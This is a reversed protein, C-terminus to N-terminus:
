IIISRLTGAFTYNTTGIKYIRFGDHKRYHLLNFCANETKEWIQLLSRRKHCARVVRSIWTTCNRVTSKLVIKKWIRRLYKKWDIFDWKYNTRATKWISKVQEILEGGIGIAIGEMAFRWGSAWVYRGSKRLLRKTCQLM